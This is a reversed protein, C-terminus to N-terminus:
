CGERWPLYTTPVMESNIVSWPQHYGTEVRTYGLHEAVYALTEPAYCHDIILTVSGDGAIRLIDKLRTRGPDEFMLIVPLGDLEVCTAYVDQISKQTWIGRNGRGGGVNCVKFQVHEAMLAMVRDVDNDNMADTFASVLVKLSEDVTLEINKEIM